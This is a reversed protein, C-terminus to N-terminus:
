SQVLALPPPAQLDAPAPAFGVCAFGWALDREGHIVSEFGLDTLIRAM